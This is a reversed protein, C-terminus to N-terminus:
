ALAVSLLGPLTFTQRIGEDQCFEALLGSSFAGGRDSHLRLVPLDQRFRERLQHHAPILVGSVDAKSRLTFVTTYRTYDDVVLLFYREQDTGSVPAPGWVDMHLTQLPATIPPLSSSHPTSRQRGEVCPLCPPAPSRPLPPLSRATVTASATVTAAATVTGAEAAATGAPPGTVAAATCPVDGFDENAIADACASIMTNYTYEDPTLGVTRIEQLLSAMHHFCGRKRAYAALVVNFTVISPAVGADARMSHFLAIADNFRGARSLASMM